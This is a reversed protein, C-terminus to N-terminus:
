GGRRMGAEVLDATREINREMAELEDPDLAPRTLDWGPEITFTGKLAGFAPHRRPRKIGGHEFERGEEAAGAPRRGTRRFVLTKGALDVQVAEFGAELWATAHVHGVSENAWWSRHTYASAPLTGGIIQAMEEFTMPVEAAFQQKLYGTLPDYKGM